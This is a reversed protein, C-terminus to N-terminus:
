TSITKADREVREGELFKTMFVTVGKKHQVKVDDMLSEILYIGLDGERLFEVTHGSHYPGVKERIQQFDSSTGYDTVMVELRDNYLAFGVIIEGRDDKSSYHVTNTIAESIAIKLDEIAEYVFGMKSAIGSITLRIVDVYEQKSPIKMEIYDIAKMM